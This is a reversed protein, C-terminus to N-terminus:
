SQFHMETYERGVSEVQAIQLSSLIVSSRAIEEVLYESRVAPTLFNRKETAIRAPIFTSHSSADM